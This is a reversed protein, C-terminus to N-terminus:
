WHRSQLGTRIGHSMGNKGSSSNPRGTRTTGPRIRRATSKPRDPHARTSAARRRSDPTRGPPVPRRHIADSGGTGTLGMERFRSTVERFLAEGEAVQGKAIAVLALAQDTHGLQHHDQLEELLRRNEELVRAAEENEARLLHVHGLALLNEAQAATDGLEVALAHSATYLDHAHDLDLNRFAEYGQLNLAQVKGWRDPGSDLLAASETLLADSDPSERYIAIRTLILLATTVGWAHGQERFVELAKRGYTDAAGLEQESIAILILVL